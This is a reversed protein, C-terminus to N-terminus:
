ATDVARLRKLLAKLSAAERPKLPQMLSAILQMQRPLTRDVIRRGAPTVRLVNVRRDTASSQREVFGRASLKDILGVVNGKTVLLHDALKQQSMPGYKALAVLVDFRALTLDSGRLDASIRAEIFNYARVLQLWAPFGHVETTDYRAM